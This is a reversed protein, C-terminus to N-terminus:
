FWTEAKPCSKLTMLYFVESLLTHEKVLIEGPFGHNSQQIDIPKLDEVLIPSNTM